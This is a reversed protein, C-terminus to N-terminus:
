TQFVCRLGSFVVLVESVFGLDSLCLERRFFVVLAQFVCSLDRFRLWDRVFM